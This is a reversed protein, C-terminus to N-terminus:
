RFARRTAADGSRGEMDALRGEAILLQVLGALKSFDIAHINTLAVETPLCCQRTLGLRLLRLPEANSSVLGRLNEQDFDPSGSM